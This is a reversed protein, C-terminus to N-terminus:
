MEVNLFFYSNRGEDNFMKQFCYFANSTIPQQNSREQPKNAIIIEPESSIPRARLANVELQLKENNFNLQDIEMNMKHIQIKFKDIVITSEEKHQVLDDLQSQFTLM